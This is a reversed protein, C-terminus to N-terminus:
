KCGTEPFLNLDPFTFIVPTCTGKVIETRFCRFKKGTEIKNKKVWALSPNAGDNIKLKATTDSFDKFRYKQRDSINAPIFEFVILMPKDPCNYDGAPAPTISKIRAYGEFKVYDCGGGSIDERIKGSCSSNIMSLALIILVYFKLHKM